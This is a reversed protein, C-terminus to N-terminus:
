SARILYLLLSFKIYTTHYFSNQSVPMAKPSYCKKDELVDGNGFSARFFVSSILFAEGIHEVDCPSIFSHQLVQCGHLKIQARLKEPSNFTVRYEDWRQSPHKWSVPM